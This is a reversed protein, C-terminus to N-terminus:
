KYLEYIESDYKKRTEFYADYWKKINENLKDQLTQLDSIKQYNVYNYLSMNLSSTAERLEEPFLLIFDSSERNFIDINTELDNGKENTSYNISLLVNNILKYYNKSNEILKLKEQNLHTQRREANKDALMIEQNHIM